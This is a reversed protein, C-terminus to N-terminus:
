FNTTFHYNFVAFAILLGQLWLLAAAAKPHQDIWRLFSGLFLFEKYIAPNENTKM